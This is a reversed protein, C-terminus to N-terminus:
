TWSDWFGRYWIDNGLLIEVREKDMVFKPDLGYYGDQHVLDRKILTDLQIKSIQEALDTSISGLIWTKSRRIYKLEHWPHQSRIIERILYGQTIISDCSNSNNRLCDEVIHGLGEESLLWLAYRRAWNERIRGILALTIAFLFVISLSGAIIANSAIWGLIANNPSIKSFTLISGAISAFISSRIWSTRFRVIAKRTIDDRNHMYNLLRISQRSKVRVLSREVRELRQLAEALTGTNMVLANPAPMQSKLYKLANALRHYEKEHKENNFEGGTKDPHM